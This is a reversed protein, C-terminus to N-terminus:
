AGIVSFCITGDKKSNGFNYSENEESNIMLAVGTDCKSNDYIKLKLKKGVLGSIPVDPYLYVRHQDPIDNTKIVTNALVKNGDLLEIALTHNADAEDLYYIRSFVVAIENINETTNVFEQEVVINKVLEDTIGTATPMERNKIEAVNETKNSNSLILMFALSGVVLAAVIGLLINRTKKNM